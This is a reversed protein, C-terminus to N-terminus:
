SLEKAILKSIEDVASDSLKIHYKKCIARLGEWIVFPALTIFYGLKSPEDLQKLIRRDFHNLKIKM